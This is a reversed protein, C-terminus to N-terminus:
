KLPIFDNFTLFVLLVLLVVTKQLEVRFIGWIRGLLLSDYQLVSFTLCRGRDLNSPFDTEKM